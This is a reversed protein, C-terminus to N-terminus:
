KGKGSVQSFLVHLDISLSVYLRHQVLRAIDVFSQIQADSFGHEKAIVKCKDTVREFNSSGVPIAVGNGM